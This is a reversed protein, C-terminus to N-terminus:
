ISYSMPMVPPLDHKGRLKKYSGDGVLIIIKWFSVNEKSLNSIVNTFFFFQYSMSTPRTTFLQSM